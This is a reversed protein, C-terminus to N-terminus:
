PKVWQSPHTCGFPQIGRPVRPRTMAFAASSMGGPVRARIASVRRLNMRVNKRFVGGGTLRGISEVRRWNGRVRKEIVVRGGARAAPVRGWVHVGNSRRYAVFPFKFPRVAAKPRGVALNGGWRYLGGQYASESVPHDKLQGWIMASVGKRWMTYAAESVWRVLLANPVARLIYRQGDITVRGLRCDPPASDWSFETAWFHKWKRVKGAAKARRLIRPIVELNELWVTGPTTPKTRPGGATYPHTSYIDFRVERKVLKAVFTRPSFTKDAPRASTAGAIVRDGRSISARLGHIARYARNVLRRYRHITELKLAPTLTRGQNPENWIEFYHVKPYRRSVAVMFAAYDAPSPRYSGQEGRKQGGPCVLKGTNAEREGRGNCEAYAPAGFVSLVPQLGRRRAEAIETDYDYWRDDVWAYKPDNPDRPSVPRDIQKCRESRDGCAIRDWRVPIRVLQSNVQRTKKMALGPRVWGWDLGSGGQNFVPDYVGVDFRGPSASATGAVFTAALVVVAVGLKVGRAGRLSVRIGSRRM